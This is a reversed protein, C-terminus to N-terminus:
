VCTSGRSRDPGQGLVSLCTVKSGTRPPDNACLMTSLSRVRSDMAGTSGLRLVSPTVHFILTVKRISRPARSRAVSRRSPGFLSISVDRFGLPGLVNRSRFRTRMRRRCSGTFRWRSRREVRREGVSRGWARRGALVRVGTRRLNALISLCPGRWRRDGRRSRRRPWARGGQRHQEDHHCHQDRSADAHQDTM